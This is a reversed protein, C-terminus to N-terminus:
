RQKIIDGMGVLNFIDKFIGLVEEYTPLAFEEAEMRCLNEEEILNFQTDGTEINNIFSEM